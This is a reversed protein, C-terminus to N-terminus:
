GIKNYSRFQGRTMLVTYREKTESLAAPTLRSIGAFATNTYSSAATSPSVTFPVGQVNDDCEILM